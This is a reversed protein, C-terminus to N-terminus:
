MTISDSSDTQWVEEAKRECFIQLPAAEAALKVGAV